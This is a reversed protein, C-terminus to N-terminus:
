LNESFQYVILLFRNKFPKKEWFVKEQSIVKALDQDYIIVSKERKYGLQWLRKRCANVTHHQV